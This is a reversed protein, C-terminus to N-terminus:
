FGMGALLSFGEVTEKIGGSARGQEVRYGVRAWIPRGPLRAEVGVEFGGGHAAVDPRSLRGSMGQWLEGFSELRGPFIAGRARLRATWFLWRRDSLGSAIFTRADPGAWVGLWPLPEYGLLAAGEAVDRASSDNTVRGQAYRLRLAIPRRRVQVEGGLVSGTFRAGGTSLRSRTIERTAGLGGSVQWQAALPTACLLLVVLCRMM